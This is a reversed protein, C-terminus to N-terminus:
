ATVARSVQRKVRTLLGAMGHLRLPSVVEGLGLRVALDDPVALAQEAPVGELGARVVEAFGRSTPAQAPADVHVHVARPAAQEVDVRLFIPSQCESVQELSGYDAALAEPLAPLDWALDHLLQLRDAPGLALFDEAIEALAPTLGGVAPVSTPDSSM